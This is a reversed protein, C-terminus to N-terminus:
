RNTNPVGSTSWAISTSSVQDCRRLAARLRGEQGVRVALDFREAFLHSGAHGPRVDGIRDEQCNALLAKVNERMRLPFIPNAGPQLVDEM